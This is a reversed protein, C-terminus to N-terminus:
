VFRGGQSSRLTNPLLNLVKDLAEVSGQARCMDPVEKSGRLRQEAPALLQKRVLDLFVKFGRSDALQQLSEKDQDQLSSNSSRLSSNSSDSSQM